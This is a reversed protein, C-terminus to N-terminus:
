LSYDEIEQWTRFSNKDIGMRLITEEKQGGLLEQNKAKRSEALPEKMERKMETNKKKREIVEQIACAGQTM